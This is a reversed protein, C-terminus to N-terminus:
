AQETESRSQAGRGLDTFNMEPKEDAEDVPRTELVTLPIDKMRVGLERKAVRESEEHSEASM